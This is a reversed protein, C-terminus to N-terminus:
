LHGPSAEQLDIHEKDRATLKNEAQKLRHELQATSNRLQLSLRGNQPWAVCACTCVGYYCV